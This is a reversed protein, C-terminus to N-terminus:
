FERLIDSGSETLLDLDNETKIADDEMTSEAISGYILIPIFGSGLVNM